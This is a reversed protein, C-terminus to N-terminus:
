AIKSHKDTQGAYWENFKDKPLPRSLHFGQAKTCGIEALYQLSQEDEVGEAVTKMGLNQALSVLTKVMVKDEQNTALDLVFAKDIKLEDVPMKKLQAMSSFGTGFDDISLEIGMRRLTNLAKIASEPDGMLASETVELTLLKPDANFESLLEGVYAPLKMDVLDIASINVAVAIQHGDDLWRKQQTLAERLCWTTVHRIAGTQEALGIFEDPPIFGHVPHIWRILCEVSCYCDQAITLKPQYHLELQGDALAEKLESMLNLRQVSHKNLEPKYIAYTHHHGKATYMAIDACQLLGAADNADEPYMSVGISADMDLVLGELNFPLDFLQALDRAISQPRRNDIDSFIMGFEDGGLRACFTNGSKYTVLRDAILKLLKDGTEHGITDNIEKFRDVDMMVVMVPKNGAKHITSTLNANFQNRNPLSTPEDFYALQNIRQERQRIGSEMDKIADSLTNVENTSCAPFEAGYQGQSIRNAADVLVKIPNAIGNSVLAAAVLTVMAALLLLGVLQGILSNYSLFAKGEPTTLLVYYPSQAALSDVAYVYQEKGLILSHLANDIDINITELMESYPDMLTSGIIQNRQGPQLISIQMGTLEALEQNILHDSRVGMILWGNIRRSTQVFKVPAAKLLYYADNLKYFTVTGGLLTEPQLTIRNSVSSVLVEQQENLVMFMDTQLRNQYNQMASALSASDERGGAILEKVSFSKTLDVLANELREARNNLKDRVIGSSTKFYDLVQGYSHEYTASRVIYVTVFFIVTVVSLFLLLIRNRLTNLRSFKSM